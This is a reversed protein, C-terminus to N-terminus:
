ARKATRNAVLRECACVLAGGAGDAFVFKGVDRMFRVLVNSAVVLEAADVFREVREMGVCFTGVRPAAVAVLAAAAETEAVVLEAGVAVFAAVAGFGNFGGAKGVGGAAAVAAVFDTRVFASPRASTASM